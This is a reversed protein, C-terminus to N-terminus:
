RLEYPPRGGSWDVYDHHFHQTAPDEHRESARVGGGADKEVRDDNRAEAALANEEKADSDSFREGVAAGNEVKAEADSFREGVSAGNGVKVESDSFREGVSAGNEVKAESDSSREGASAGNEAKAESDSSREGASAGNEAKAEADSSREGVSAGNGVKVEADSSREGVAAGNGVKAESDSSREGVAASNGQKHSDDKGRALAIREAGNKEESDQHRAEEAFRFDKKLLLEKIDDLDKAGMGGYDATKIDPFDSLWGAMIAHVLYNQIQNSLVGSLRPPWNSHTRITIVYDDALAQLDFLGSTASTFRSLFSELDTIAERYHIDLKGEESDSAWITQFDVEPNHQAITATLGEVVGM